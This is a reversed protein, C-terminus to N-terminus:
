CGGGSAGPRRRRTSPRARLGRRARGWPSTRRVCGLARGPREAFAGSSAINNRSCIRIHGRACLISGIAKLRTSLLFDGRIHCERHDSWEGKLTHDRWEPGLPEDNAILLLMMSKLWGPDYCGSRSPRNWDKHFARTDDAARPLASRKASAPRKSSGRLTRGGGRVPCRRIGDQRAVGRYRRPDPYRGPVKLKLPFAQDNVIRKLLIRVADSVSLGMCALAESAETKTEDDVRLHLMSTRAM